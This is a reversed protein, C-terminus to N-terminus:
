VIRPANLKMVTKGFGTLLEKSPHVIDHIEGNIDYTKLSITDYFLQKNDIRTTLIARNNQILINWIIDGAPTSILVESDDKYQQKDVRPMETTV